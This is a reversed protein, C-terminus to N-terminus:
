NQKPESLKAAPPAAVPSLRDIKVTLDQIQQKLETLLTQTKNATNGTLREQYIQVREVSSEWGNIRAEFLANELLVGKNLLITVAATAGSNCAQALLRDLEIKDASDTNILSCAAAFFPSNNAIHRLNVAILRILFEQGQAEPMKATMTQIQEASLAAFVPKEAYCLDSLSLEGYKPFGKQLLIPNTLVTQLNEPRGETFAKLAGKALEMNQVAAAVQEATGGYGIEDNTKLSLAAKDFLGNFLKKM